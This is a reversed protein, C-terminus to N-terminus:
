TGVGFNFKGTDWVRGSATCSLSNELNTSAAQVVMGLPPGSSRLQMAFEDLPSFPNQAPPTEVPMANSSLYDM